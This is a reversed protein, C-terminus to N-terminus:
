KVIVWGDPAVSHIVKVGGKGEPIEKAIRKDNHLCSFKIGESQLVVMMAAFPTAFVIEHGMLVQEKLSPTYENRVQFITAGSDPLNLRIYDGLIEEQQPLVTHSENIIVIRM